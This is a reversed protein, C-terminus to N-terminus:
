DVKVATFSEVKRAINVIKGFRQSESLKIATNRVLPTAGVFALIFFIIWLSWGTPKRPTCEGLQNSESVVGQAFLVAVIAAM